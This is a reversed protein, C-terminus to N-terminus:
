AKLATTSDSSLRNPSLARKRKIKSYLSFHLFRFFSSYQELYAAQSSWGWLSRALQATNSFMHQSASFLVTELWYQFFICLQSAVSPSMSIFSYQPLASWNNARSVLKLLLYVISFGCYKSCTTTLFLCSQLLKNLKLYSHQYSTLRPCMGVMTILEIHTDTCSWRHTNFTM